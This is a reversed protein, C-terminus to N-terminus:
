VLVGREGAGRHPHSPPKKPAEPNGRNTQSVAVRRFWERSFIIGTLSGGRSAQCGVSGEKREILVMM